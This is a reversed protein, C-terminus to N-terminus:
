YNSMLRWVKHVINHATSNRVTRKIRMHEEPGFRDIIFHRINTGKFDWQNNEFGEDGPSTKTPKGFQGVFFKQFDNYSESLDPYSTRFFELENLRGNKRPDFHFGIECQLGGLCEGHTTYYGTTVNTLHTGKFLNKLEKENIDWPVFIEPQDIKFGKEINM